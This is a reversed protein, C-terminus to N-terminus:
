GSISLLRRAHSSSQKKIIIIKPSDWRKASRLSLRDKERKRAYTCYMTNAQESERTHGDTVRPRCGPSAKVTRLMAAM